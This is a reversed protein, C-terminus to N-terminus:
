KTKFVYGVGRVTYILRHPFDKELKSRLRCVLVDVINTTPDFEYNWIHKLIMNKNIIKEQNSMFLDLLLFEREQLNLKKEARFVERTIRNLVVDAGLLKTEEKGGTARRVLAKVRMQLEAMAYPKTIYDDGGLQLGRVRDDVEKLASVILVPTQFQKNRLEQIFSFGDMGPLMIDLVICDYKEHIARQLGNQGNSEIIVEYQENSALNKQILDAAEIDDEIVLIKM